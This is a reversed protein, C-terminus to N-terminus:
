RGRRRYLLNHRVRLSDTRQVTRGGHALRQFENLTRVANPPLCTALECLREARPRAPFAPGAPSWTWGWPSAAPRRGAPSGTHSRRPGRRRCRASRRRSRGSCIPWRPNNRCRRHARPCAARFSCSPWGAPAQVCGAPAPSSSSRAGAPGRPRPWAMAQARSMMPWSGKAIRSGSM